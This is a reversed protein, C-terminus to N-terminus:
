RCHGHCQLTCYCPISTSWGTGVGRAGNLLVLPLVPPFTEPEIFHGDDVKYSLFLNDESLILISTILSLACSLYRSAGSEKNGFHRCGFHGYPVLLNVNNSGLFDQAMGIIALSLGHEGHYYATQECIHGILAELKHIGPTMHLASHLIKRQCLKLGNITSPISHVIDHHYYSMFEKGVFETCSVLGRSYDPVRTPDFNQLLRKRNAVRFQSDGFVNRLLDEKSEDWDLGILFRSFNSFLKNTDASTLSANTVNAEFKIPTVANFGSHDLKLGLYNRQYPDQLTAQCGATSAAVTSSSSPPLDSPSTSSSSSFKRFEMVFKDLDSLWLAQVTSSRLAILERTKVMASEYLRDIQDQFFVHHSRLQRIFKIRNKFKLIEDQLATV